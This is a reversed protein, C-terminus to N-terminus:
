PAGDRSRGGGRRRPATATTTWRASAAAACPSSSSAATVSPVSPKRAGAPKRTAGGETFPGDLGLPLGSTGGPAGPRKRLRSACGVPLRVAWPTAVALPGVAIRRERRLYLCKNAATQHHIAPPKRPTGCSGPNAGLSGSFPMRGGEKISVRFDEPSHVRPSQLGARMPLSRPGNGGQRRADPAVPAREKEPERGARPRPLEAAGAEYRRVERPPRARRCNCSRWTGAFRGSKALFRVTVVWFRARIPRWPFGRGFQPM